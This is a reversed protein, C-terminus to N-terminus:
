AAGVGQTMQAFNLLIRQGVRQSKEPHFQVGFVNGRGVVSAFDLGYDTRALVDDAETPSVYYSHIFYTYAGNPVGDLLPSPNARHLQNWGMHPVKLDSEPFRLVRGPLLGLGAHQGMEESVTFLFQMGLCIGLLPVGDDAHQRLPEVFGAERLRDMGAGFAGVGPLLIADVGDLDAPTAALRMDVGLHALTNRVSHLNGAGYDVVGIM